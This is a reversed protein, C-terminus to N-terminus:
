GRPRPHWRGPGRRVAGSSLVTRSVLDDNWATRFNFWLHASKYRARVEESSEFDESLYGLDDYALLANVSVTSREGVTHEVKGLFDYYDSLIRDSTVNEGTFVATPYWARGSILWVAQRTM